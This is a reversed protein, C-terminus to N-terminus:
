SSTLASLGVRSFEGMTYEVQGSFGKQRLSEDQVLNGIFAHFGAEWNGSFYHIVAGHTQDNQNLNTASRSWATHDPVRIGFVKDMLGVYVGWERTIRYGIYHERSRYEEMDQNRASRPTPAYSI